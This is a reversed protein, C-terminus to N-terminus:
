KRGGEEEEHNTTVTGGDNFSQGPHRTYYDVHEELRFRIKFKVQWHLDLWDISQYKQLM